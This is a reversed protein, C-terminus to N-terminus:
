KKEKEDATAFVPISDGEKLTVYARKSDNRQGAIPQRRKRYSRKTKGKIVAINVATVSVNFQTEIAQKVSIRNTDKPVEFVYTNHVQSLGYAKESVRPKIVINAADSM